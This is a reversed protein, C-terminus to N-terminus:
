AHVNARALKDSVAQARRFFDALEPDRAREARGILAEVRVHNRRCEAAFWILNPDDDNPRDFHGSEATGAKM